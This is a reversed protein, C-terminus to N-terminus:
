YKAGSLETFEQDNLRTYEELRDEISSRLEELIQKKIILENLFDRTSETHIPKSIQQTIKDVVFQIEMSLLADIYKFGPHELLSTIDMVRKDQSGIALNPM